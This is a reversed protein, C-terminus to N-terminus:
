KLEGQAFAEFISCMFSIFARSPFYLIIHMGHKQRYRVINTHRCSLRYIRAIREIRTVYRIYEHGIPLYQRNKM